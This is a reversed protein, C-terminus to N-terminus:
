IGPSSPPLVSAILVVLGILWWDQCQAVIHSRSAMRGVLIGNAIPKILCQPSASAGSRVSRCSCCTSRNRLAFGGIAAGGHPM